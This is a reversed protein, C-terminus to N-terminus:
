QTINQFHQMQHFLNLLRFHHNKLATGNYHQFIPTMRILKIENESKNFSCILKGDVTLQENSIEKFGYSDYEYVINKENHEFSYTFTAYERDSDANVYFKYKESVFFNDTLHSAIDLIAM